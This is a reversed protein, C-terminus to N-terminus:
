VSPTIELIGAKSPQHQVNPLALAAHPAQVLASQRVQQLVPSRHLATLYTHHSMTHDRLVAAIGQMHVLHLM